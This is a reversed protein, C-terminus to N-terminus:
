QKLIPELSEGLLRTFIVQGAASLHVTDSFLDDSLRPDHAFDLFIVDQGDLYDALDRMYRHLAAPEAQESPYILTKSRAVILQIGNERCLRIIEPLFSREVQQSFDTSRVRYLSLEVDRLNRDAVEEELNATSFVTTMSNKVCKEDCDQLFLSSLSRMRRDLGDRMRVRYGYVPLFQEMLRELGSMPEVYSLQTVLPENHDALEDILEFYRGTVRVDPRTLLTDRFFLILVPAKYSSYVINNKIVLYWVASASGPLGIKYVDKELSESLTAQNVGVELTSDGLLVVDPHSEEIAKQFLQKTKSGFEPGLTKPYPLGSRVTLWASSAIGLLAFIALYTSLAKM